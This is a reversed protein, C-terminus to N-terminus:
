FLWLSMWPDTLSFNSPLLLFVSCATSLSVLGGAIWPANDSVVIPRAVQEVSAMVSESVSTSMAFVGDRLQEEAAATKAQMWKDPDITM